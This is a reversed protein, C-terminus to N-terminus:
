DTARLYNIVQAEDIQTLGAQAKIEVLLSSFCVLDARYGCPLKAEKYYIPIAMERHFPIEGLLLENCLAHLYVTELFGHGLLNHMEFAAGIVAASQTDYSM